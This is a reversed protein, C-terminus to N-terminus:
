KLKYFDDNESNSSCRSMDENIYELAKKSANIENVIASILELDKSNSPVEQRCLEFLSESIGKKLLSLTKYSEEKMREKYERCYGDGPVNKLAYIVERADEITLDQKRKIKELSKKYSEAFSREFDCSINKTKLNNSKENGKNCSNNSIFIIVIIIFHIKRM